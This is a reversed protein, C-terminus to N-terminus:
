PATESLCQTVCSLLMCHVIENLLLSDTPDYSCLKIFSQPRVIDRVTDDSLLAVFSSLTVRICLSMNLDSVSPDFFSYSFSVHRNKWNLPFM